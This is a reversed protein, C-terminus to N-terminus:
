RAGCGFIPQIAGGRRMERVREDEAPSRFRFPPLPNRLIKRLSIHDIRKEHGDKRLIVQDATITASDVVLSAGSTWVQRRHYASREAVEGTFIRYFLLGILAPGRWYTTSAWLSFSDACNDWFRRELEHQDDSDDFHERLLSIEDPLLLGQVSHFLEHKAARPPNKGHAISVLIYDNRRDPMCFGNLDIISGYDYGLAECCDATARLEHAYDIRAMPNILNAIESIESKLTQFEDM